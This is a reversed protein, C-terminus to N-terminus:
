QLSLIFTQNEAYTKTVSCSLFVTNLTFSFIIHWSKSAYANNQAILCCSIFWYEISVEQLKKERLTAATNNEERRREIIYQLIVQSVSELICLPAAATEFGWCEVNTSGDTQTQTYTSSNRLVDSVWRSHAFFVWFSVTNQYWITTLLWSHNHWCKFSAFKRISVHSNMCM